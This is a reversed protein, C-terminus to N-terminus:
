EADEADDECGCAACECEECEECKEAEDEPEKEAAELRAKANVTAEANIKVLADTYEGRVEAAKAWLERLEGDEGYIKNLAATAVNIKETLDAVKAALEGIEPNEVGIATKREAIDGELKNVDAIFKDRVTKMELLQVKYPDSMIDSVKHVVGSEDETVAASADERAATEDAFLVGAGGALTLLAVITFSVNKRM